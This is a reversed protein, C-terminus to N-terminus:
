VTNYEHMRLSDYCFWGIGQSSSVTGGTRRENGDMGEWGAWTAEAYRFELWEHCGRFEAADQFQYHWDTSWYTGMDVQFSSFAGVDRWDTEPHPWPSVNTADTNDSHLVSICGPYELFANLKVSFNSRTLFVRVHEIVRTHLDEWKKEISFVPTRKLFDGYIQQIGPWRM